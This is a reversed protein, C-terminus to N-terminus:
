WVSAAITSSGEGAWTTLSEQPSHSDVTLWSAGDSAASSYESKSCAATCPWLTIAAAPSSPASPQSLPVRATSSGALWGYTVPTPPVVSLAVPVGGVSDAQFVIGDSPARPPADPPPMEVM